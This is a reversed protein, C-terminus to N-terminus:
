RPPARAQFAARLPRVAAARGPSTVFIDIDLAAITLATASGGHASALPAFSACELCLQTHVGPVDTREGGLRLHRTAHMGAAAQAILLAILSLIAIPQKFSRILGHRRM